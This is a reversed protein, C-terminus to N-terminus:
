SVVASFWVLNCVNSVENIVEQTMVVFRLPDTGLPFEEEDMALDDMNLGPEGGLDPNAYEDDDESEMDSCPAAEAAGKNTAKLTDRRFNRFTNAKNAYMTGEAMLDRAEKAYKNHQREALFTQLKQLELYDCLDKLDEATSPSTHHNSNTPIKYQGQVQQIIDRLTFISVTVM